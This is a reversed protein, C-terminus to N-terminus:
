TLGLANVRNEVITAVQKMSAADIEQDAPMDAVLLVQVGGQLDLGQRIDFDSDAKIPGLAIHIGPSNPLDIYIAVAALIIILILLVINRNMVIVRKRESFQVTQACVFRNYEITM